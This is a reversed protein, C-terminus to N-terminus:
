LRPTVGRLVIEGPQSPCVWVVLHTPAAALVLHTIVATLFKMLRRPRRAAESYILNHHPSRQQCQSPMRALHVLTPGLSTPLAAAWDM